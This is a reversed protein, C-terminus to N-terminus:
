GRQIKKILADIKEKRGDGWTGQTDSSLASLILAKDQATLTM